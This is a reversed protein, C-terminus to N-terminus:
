DLVTIGLHDCPGAALDLLHRGAAGAYETDFCDAGTLEKYDEAWDDRNPEDLEPHQQHYAMAALLSCSDDQLVEHLELSSAYGICFGAMWAQWQEECWERMETAHDQCAHLLAAEIGCNSQYAMAFNGADFGHSNLTPLDLDIDPM